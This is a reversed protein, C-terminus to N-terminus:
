VCFYTGMHSIGGLCDVPKSISVTLGNAITGSAVTVSIQAFSPCDTASPRNAAPTVNDFTGTAEDYRFSFCAKDNGAGANGVKIQVVLPVVGASYSISGSTGGHFGSVLSKCDTSGGAITPAPFGPCKFDNGTFTTPCSGDSGAEAGPSSSSTGGTIKVYCYKECPKSGSCNGTGAFAPTSTLIPASWVIAGAVAGKKM